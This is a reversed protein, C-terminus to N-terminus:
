PTTPLTLHTYSVANAFNNGQVVANGTGGYAGGSGTTYPNETADQQGFFIEEILDGAATDTGSKSNIYTANDSIIKMAKSYANLEQGKASAGANSASGPSLTSGTINNALTHLIDNANITAGM